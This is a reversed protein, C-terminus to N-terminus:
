NSLNSFLSSDSPEHTVCNRALKYKFRAFVVILEVKQIAL